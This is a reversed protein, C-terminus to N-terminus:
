PLRSRNSRQAARKLGWLAGGVGGVVYGSFFGLGGFRMTDFHSDLREGIGGLGMALTFAGAGAFLSTFAIFSALRTHHSDGVAVLCALTGVILLAFILGFMPLMM